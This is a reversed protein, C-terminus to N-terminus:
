SITDKNGNPINCRSCNNVSARITFSFENNATKQLTLTKRFPKKSFTKKTVLICYVM